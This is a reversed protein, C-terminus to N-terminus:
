RRRRQRCGRLLERLERRLLPLEWHKRLDAGLGLSVRSHLPVEQRTLPGPLLALLHAQLSPSVLLGILTAAPASLMETCLPPCHDRQHTRAGPAAQKKCGCAGEAPPGHIPCLKDLCVHHGQDWRVKLPSLPVNPLPSMKQIWTSLTRQPFRKGWSDSCCPSRLGSLLSIQNASLTMQSGIFTGTRVMLVPGREPGQSHIHLGEVNLESEQSQVQERPSNGGGM